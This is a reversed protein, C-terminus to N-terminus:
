QTFLVKKQTKLNDKKKTTVHSKMLYCGKPFQQKRLRSQNKLNKKKKIKVYKEM